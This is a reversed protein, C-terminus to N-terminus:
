AAWLVADVLLDAMPVVGRLEDRRSILEGVASTHRLALSRAREAAAITPDDVDM